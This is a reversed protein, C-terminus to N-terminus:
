QLCVCMFCCDRWLLTKDSGRGRREDDDVMGISVQSHVDSRICDCFCQVSVKTTSSRSALCAACSLSAIGAPTPEVVPTRLWGSCESVRWRVCILSSPSHPFTTGGWTSSVCPCVALWPLSLRSATSVVSLRSLHPLVDCGPSMEDNWLIWHLLRIDTYDHSQTHIHCLSAVSWGLHWCRLTPWKLSSLSRPLCFLLACINNCVHM